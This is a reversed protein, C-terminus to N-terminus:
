EEEKNPTENKSIPITNDLGGLLQAQENQVEIIGKVWRSFNVPDIRTIMEHYPVIRSLINRLLDPYLSHEKISIEIDKELQDEVTLLIDKDNYFFTGEYYKSKYTISILVLIGGEVQGLYELISPEFKDV